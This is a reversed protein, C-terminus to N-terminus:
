KGSCHANSIIREREFTSRAKSVLLSEPTSMRRIVKERENGVLPRIEKKEEKMQRWANSPRRTLHIDDRRKM